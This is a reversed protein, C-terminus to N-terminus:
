VEIHPGVHCSRQLSETPHYVFREERGACVEEDDEDVEDDNYKAGEWGM